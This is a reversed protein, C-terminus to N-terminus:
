VDLDGRARAVDWESTLAASFVETDKRRPQGEALMDRFRELDRLVIEGQEGIEDYMPEDVVSCILLNAVELRGKMQEYTLKPSLPM